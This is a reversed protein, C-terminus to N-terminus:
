EVVRRIKVVYMGKPYRDLYIHAVAEAKESNGAAHWSLAAEALADEGMSPNPAQKVCRYFAQAAAAHRGRAREVKGLTFQASGM